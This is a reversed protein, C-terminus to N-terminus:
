ASPNMIWRILRLGILVALKSCYGAAACCGGSWTLLDPCCKQSKHIKDSFHLFQPVNIHVLLLLLSNSALSPPVLKRDGRSRNTPPLLVIFTTPRPLGNIGWFLFKYPGFPLLLRIESLFLPRFLFIFPTRGIVKEGERRRHFIVRLHNMGGVGGGM